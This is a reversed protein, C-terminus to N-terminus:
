AMATPLQIESRRRPVFVEPLADSETTPPNILESIQRRNERLAMLLQRPPPKSQAMTAPTPSPEINLIAAIMWIAGMAALHWRVPLLLEWWCRHFATRISLRDCSEEPAEASIANTWRMQLTPDPEIQAFSREWNALPATVAKMEDFYKRCDACATLHDQADTKEQDPLAGSALLCISERYRACPNFFRKM